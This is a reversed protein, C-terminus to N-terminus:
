FPPIAMATVAMGGGRAMHVIYIRTIEQLMFHISVTMEVPCNSISTASIELGATRKFV